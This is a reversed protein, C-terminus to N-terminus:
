LQARMLIAPFRFGGGLPVEIDGEPAFGMARYFPVATRTSQSLLQSMGSAKATLMIHELVARGVGQRVADPDTAVHRIHGVGRTGPRGGPAALSWGGAGLIEGDEDEAVYFLSSQVLNPQARAMTPVATVLISPPYDAALLRAYSRQFLRDLAGIDSISASRITVVRTM